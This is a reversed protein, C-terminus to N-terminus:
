GNITLANVTPIRTEKHEASKPTLRTNFLYEIIPSPRDCTPNPASATAAANFTAGSATAIGTTIM